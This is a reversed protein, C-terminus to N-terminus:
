PTAGPSAPSPPAPELAAPSAWSPRRAALHAVVDAISDPSLDSAPKGLDPRGFVVASWLGQDTINALFLPDSVSERGDAAHCAACNAAFVQEGRSPDGLRVTSGAPAPAGPTEWRARLGKVLVAIDADDLDAYAVYPGGKARKSFGPMLRGLGVATAEIVQADPMTRWWLPDNLPRAAGLTGDAGHCGACSQAWFASLGEPSDLGPAAPAAAEVSGPPLPGRGCGALTALLALGLLSAPSATTALRIM